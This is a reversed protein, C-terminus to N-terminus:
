VHRIDGSKVMKAIKRVLVGTPYLASRVKKNWPDYSVTRERMLHSNVLAEIGNQMMEESIGERGGMLHHGEDFYLEPWGDVGPANEIFLTLLRMAQTNDRLNEAINEVVPLADGVFVEEIPFQDNLKLLSENYNKQRGYLRIFDGDLRLLKRSFRPKWMGEENVDVWGSSDSNKTFPALKEATQEKVLDGLRGGYEVVEKLWVHSQLGFEGPAKGFNWTRTGEGKGFSVSWGKVREAFRPNLVLAATFGVTGIVVATAGYNVGLQKWASSTVKKDLETQANQREEPTLQTEIDLLQQIQEQHAHKWADKAGELTFTRRLNEKVRTGLSLKERPRGIGVHVVHEAM